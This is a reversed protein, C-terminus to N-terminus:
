LRIRGPAAENWSGQRAVAREAKALAAEAARLAGYVQGLLNNVVIRTSDTPDDPVRRRVAEAREELSGSV